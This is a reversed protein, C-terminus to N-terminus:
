TTSGKATTTIAWEPRTHWALTGALAALVLPAISPGWDANLFHTGIAGLMIATLGTSAWFRARPILLAIAGAIELSGILPIAWSPVNLALLTEDMSGSLKGAGSALFALGLIGTLIWLAITTRRAKAEAM